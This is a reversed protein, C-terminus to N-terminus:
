SKVVPVPALCVERLWWAAGEMTRVVAVPHGMEVLRNICEIQADDPMGRGNKWELYATCGTWVAGNDPFGTYLGERKVKARGANSAINTGNPIGHVLVRKAHQRMFKVWAWQRQNESATGRDKPEVYVRPDLAPELPTELADFLAALSTVRRELPLGTM